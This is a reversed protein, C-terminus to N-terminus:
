FPIHLHSTIIGRINFKTQKCIDKSHKPFSYNWKKPKKKINQPLFTLISNFILTFKLKKLSYINFFLNQLIFTSSYIKKLFWM